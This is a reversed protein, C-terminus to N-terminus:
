KKAKPKPKATAKKPKATATKAPTGGHQKSLRSKLRSAKNPEIIGWKAAKDVVSITKSITDPSATKLAAKLTEKRRRNVATKTEAVRLAKKASKTIPM